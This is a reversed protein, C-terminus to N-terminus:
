SAGFYRLIDTNKTTMYHVIHFKSSPRPRQSFRSFGDRFQSSRSGRPCRNSERRTWFWFKKKASESEVCFTSIIIFHREKRESTFFLATPRSFRVVFIKLFLFPRLLALIFPPHTAGLRCGLGRVALGCASGWALARGSPPVAAHTLASGSGGRLALQRLRSTRIRIGRVDTLGDTLWDTLGDYFGSQDSSRRSRKCRRRELTGWFTRITRTCANLLCFQGQLGRGERSARDFNIYYYVSTQARWPVPELGALPSYM